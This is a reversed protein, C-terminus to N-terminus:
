STSPGHAQCNIYLLYFRVKLYPPMWLREDCSFHKFHEMIQAPILSHRPGGLSMQRLRLMQTSDM